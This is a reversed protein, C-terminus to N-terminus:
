YAWLNGGITDNIWLAGLRTEDDLYLKDEILREIQTGNGFKDCVLVDDPTRTLSDVLETSYTTVIMACDAPPKLVKKMIRGVTAMINPHLGLEPQEICVIPPLDPNFLICLVALFRFIGDSLNSIPSGLPREQLYIKARGKESKVLFDATDVYFHRLHEKIDPKFGAQILKDLMIPLNSFDELLCDSPMDIPSDKRIATGYGFSWNRYIKTKAIERALSTIVPYRKPDTYYSLCTQGPGPKDDGAEVLENDRRVLPNGSNSAFFIYCEIEDENDNDKSDDVEDYEGEDNGSEDDIDKDYEGEDNESEDNEGEYDVNEDYKGEENESEEDVDEDCEDDENNDDEDWEDETSDDKDEETGRIGVLSEEAIILRAGETMLSISYRLKPYEGKTGEDVNTLEFKLTAPKAEDTGKYLWDSPDEIRQIVKTFAQEDPACRLLEIADIFSSKGGGNRGLIVNLAQM